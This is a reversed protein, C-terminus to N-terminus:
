ERREEEAWSTLFEIRPMEAVCASDPERLPNELFQIVLSLRCTQPGQPPGHGMGPLEFVYARRLTAAIRRALETPTRDDFEATLILTPVDSRVPVQEAPDAFRSQWLPCEELRTSRFPPRVLANLSDHIARWAPGYVDFCNVLHLIVQDAEGGQSGAFGALTRAARMRDGRRLEHLLLPLQSLRGPRNLINNRTTTVFRQGDLWATEATRDDRVVPVSLPNATLEDYVAYFDDGVNPFTAHCTPQSDCAAFVRELARQNSLSVEAHRDIPRTDPTSLVVARIAREDRRMAEQALKAGYSVALLDWMEYGLVRRLDILDLASAGTNYAAREIGQAELSSICARAGDNLVREREAANRLGQASDEMARYAPCLKPESFGSGRQDYIVIDRGVALPSRAVGPTVTRLGSEGPGGHLLVLPPDGSPDKARIVAVALRITRGDQRDRDEPVVLWGCDIKAGGEWGGRPFM